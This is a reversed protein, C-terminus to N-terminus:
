YQYFFISRFNENELNSNIKKDDTVIPLSFRNTNFEILLHIVIYIVNTILFLIIVPIFLLTNYILKM